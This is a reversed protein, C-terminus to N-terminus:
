VDAKTHNATADRFGLALSKHQRFIVDLPQQGLALRIGNLELLRLAAHRSSDSM